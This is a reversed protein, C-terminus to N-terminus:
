NKTKQKPLKIEIWWGESELMCCAKNPNKYSEEQLGTIDMEAFDELEKVGIAVTSMDKWHNKLLDKLPGNYQTYDFNRYNIIFLTGDEWSTWKEKPYKCRYRVKMGDQLDKLLIPM